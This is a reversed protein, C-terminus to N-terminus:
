ALFLPPPCCPYEAALGAVDSGLSDEAIRVKLVDMM